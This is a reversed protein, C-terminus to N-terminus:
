GGAGAYFFSTHTALQLGQGAAQMGLLKGLASQLHQLVKTEWVLTFCDAPLTHALPHIAEGGWVSAHLLM